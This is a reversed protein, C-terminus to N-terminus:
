LTENINVEMKVIFLLITMTKTTPPTMPPTCIEYSLWPLETVNTLHYQKGKIKDNQSMENINSEIWTTKYFYRQDSHLELLFPASKLM